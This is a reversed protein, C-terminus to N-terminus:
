EIEAICRFGLYMGPSNYNIVKTLNTNLDPPEYNNSGMAIGKELTMESVNAFMDYVRNGPEKRDYLIYQGASKRILERVEAIDKEMQKLDTKLLEEAVEKWEEATPLRYTVKKDLKKSIAASRWKCYEVAQEYTILVIPKSSNEPLTYWYNSSDPLLDPLLSAKVSSSNFYIYERWHINLIETKDIYYHKVKITGPPNNNSLSFLLPILLLITTM